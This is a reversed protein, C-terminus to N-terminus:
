QGAPGAPRERHQARRRGLEAKRAHFLPECPEAEPRDDEAGPPTVLAAIDLM